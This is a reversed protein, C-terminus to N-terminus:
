GRGSHTRLFENAQRVADSLDFRDMNSLDDSSRNGTKMMDRLDSIAEKVGQTDLSRRLDQLTSLLEDVWSPRSEARVSTITAAENAPFTVLSYEWLKVERLTTVKTEENYMSAPQGDSAMSPLSFGISMGGLVGARALALAEQAKQVEPVMRARVFLGREDERIEETVGIPSFADHQWLVPVKKGKAKWSSLTRSFANPAVSEGYSDVVGFVSAYGEITTGEEGISKIEFTFDKTRRM